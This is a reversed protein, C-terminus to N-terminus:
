AAYARLFLLPNALLCWFRIFLLVKLRPAQFVFSFLSLLIPFSSFHWDPFSLPAYTNPGAIRSHTQISGRLYMFSADGKGMCLFVGYM